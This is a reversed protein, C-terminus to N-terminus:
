SKKTKEVTEMLKCLLCGPGPVNKEAKINSARCPRFRLKPTWIQANPNKGPGVKTIYINLQPQMWIKKIRGLGCM